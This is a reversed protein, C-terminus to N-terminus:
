NITLTYTTTLSDGNSAAAVLNIASFVNRDLLTGAAAASFIGHETVALTGGSDPSFTAATTYTNTSSSQSGTPRTSNTVYETTFETQLATDGVAAATTGTGYGHYKFNEPENTNPFCAALYNKGATTVVHRSVVGYDTVSGDAHDVVAHLASVYLTVGGFVRGVWRAPPFWSDKLGKLWEVTKVLYPLAAEGSLLMRRRNRKVWGPDPRRVVKPGAAPESLLRVEAPSGGEWPLPGRHVIGTLTGAAEVKAEVTRDLSRM